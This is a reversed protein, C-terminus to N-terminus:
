CKVYLGGSGTSSSAHKASRKLHAKAPNGGVATTCRTEIAPHGAFGLARQSEFKINDYIHTAPDVGSTGLERYLMVDHHDSIPLHVLSGTSRELWTVEGQLRIHVLFIWFKFQWGLTSGTIPSSHLWMCDFASSSVFPNLLYFKSFNLNSVALPRQTHLGSQRIVM